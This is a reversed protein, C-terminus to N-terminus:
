GPRAALRKIFEQDTINRDKILGAIASEAYKARVTTINDPRKGRIRSVIWRQLQESM